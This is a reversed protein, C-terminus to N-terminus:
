NKGKPKLNAALKARQEESLQRKRGTRPNWRDAPITFEAWETSGRFGSAVERFAADKRCQTLVKRQATWIRVMEDGDSMNIVTEREFPNLSRVGVPSTEESM